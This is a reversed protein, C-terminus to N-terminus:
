DGRRARSRGTRRANDRGRLDHSAHHADKHQLPTRLGLYAGYADTLEAVLRDDPLEVFGKRTDAFLVYERMAASVFTLGLDIAARPDPHRIEGVRALLLMRLRDHLFRNTRAIRERFREDNTTRTRLAIQRLIGRDKRFRGVALAVYAEIVERASRGVFRGPDLAVEAADLLEGVFHEEFWSLLADKSAFREYFAGVSIGAKKAIAAVSVDEFRTSSLLSLAAELIREATKRSREQLPAKLSHYPRTLVTRIRRFRLM